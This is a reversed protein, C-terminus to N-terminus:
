SQRSRLVSWSVKLLTALIEEPVTESELDDESEVLIEAARELIWSPVVLTGTGDRASSSHTIRFSKSSLDQSGYRAKLEKAVQDEIGMTGEETNDIDM